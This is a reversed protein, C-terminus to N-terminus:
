FDLLCNGYDLILQSAPDSSLNQEAGGDAQGGPKAQSEQANGEGQGQGDNGAEKFDDRRHARDNGSNGGDNDGESERGLDSEGSDGEVDENLKQFVM